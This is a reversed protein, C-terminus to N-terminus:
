LILMGIEPDRGGILPAIVDSGKFARGYRITTTGFMNKPALPYQELVTPEQSNLARDMWACEGPNLGNSASNLAKKFRLHAVTPSFEFSM